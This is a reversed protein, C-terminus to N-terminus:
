CGGPWRIMGVQARKMWDAIRPDQYLSDREMAYVFHMGTLFRSIKWQPKATAVSIRVPESLSVQPM